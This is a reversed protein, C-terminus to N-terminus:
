PAGGIWGANRAAPLNSHLDPHKAAGDLGTIEIPTGSILIANGIICRATNSAIEPDSVEHQGSLIERENLPEKSILDALQDRNWDIPEQAKNFLSFDTPKIWTM